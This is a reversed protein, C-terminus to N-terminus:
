EAGPLNRWTIGHGGPPRGPGARLPELDLGLRGLIRIALARNATEHRL